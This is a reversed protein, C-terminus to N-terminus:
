ILMIQSTSDKGLNYYTYVGKGMQIPVNSLSLSKLNYPKKAEKLLTNGKVLQIEPTVKRNVKYVFLIGENAVVSDM